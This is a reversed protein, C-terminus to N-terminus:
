EMQVLFIMTKGAKPQVTCSEPDEKGVPISGLSEATFAGLGLWQVAPLGQGLFRKTERASGQEWGWARGGNHFSM